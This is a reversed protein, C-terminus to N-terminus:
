YQFYKMKSNKQINKGTTYSNNGILKLVEKIEKDDKNIAEDISNILVRAREIAIDYLDYFSYHYSINKDTPYCWKKHELNLVSLDLKKIYYCLNRLKKKKSIHLFDLISYIHAKIGCRSTMGHAMIFRFNKYGRYMYKSGHPENFTNLFAYDIINNLSDSFKVKTLIEKSLNAKYILKNNKEQYIIADIMYELYNHKGKFHKTSKDNVIYNGTKYFVYPHVVSDLVYHTISGYLYALADSDGELHHDKIYKIINKFYLNTNADHAMEGLSFKSFFLLDFSSGFLYYLSSSSKLKDKIKPDLVKLVDKTFIHHTYTAPM